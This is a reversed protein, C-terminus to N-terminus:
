QKTLNPSLTDMRVSIPGGQHVAVVIKDQRQWYAAREALLPDAGTAQRFTVESTTIWSRNKTVFGIWPLLTGSPASDVHPMLNKPLFLVAGKPIMTWNTGDSLITSNKIISQQDPRAVEHESGDPKSLRTTPDLSQLAAISKPTVRKLVPQVALAHGAVLALILITKM